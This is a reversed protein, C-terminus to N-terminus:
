ALIASYSHVVTHRLVNCGNKLALEESANQSFSSGIIDKKGYAIAVHTHKALEIPRTPSCQLMAYVVM